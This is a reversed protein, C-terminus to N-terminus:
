GNTVTGAYSEKVAKELAHADAGTVSEEFMGDKFVSFKPVAYCGLEHALDSADEVNYRFFQADPYKKRLKTIFPEITKCSPCTNSVGQVIVLGETDTVKDNYDDRSYLRQVPEPKEGDEDPKLEASDYKLLALKLDGFSDPSTRRLTCPRRHWMAIAYNSLLQMFILENLFLLSKCHCFLSPAGAGRFHRARHCLALIVRQFHDATEFNQDQHYLVIDVLHGQKFRRACDRIKLVIVCDATSNYILQNM